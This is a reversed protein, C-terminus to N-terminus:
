HQDDNLPISHFYNTDPFIIKEFQTTLNIINNHSLETLSETKQEINNKIKNSIESMKNYDKEGQKISWARKSGIANIKSVAKDIDKALEPHETKQQELYKITERQQNKLGARATKVDPSAKAHWLKSMAGEKMLNVGVGAMPAGMGTLAVLIATGAAISIGGSIPSIPAQIGGAIILGGGMLVGSIATLSGMAFLTVGVKFTFGPKNMALQKGSKNITMLQKPYNLYSGVTKLKSGVSRLFSKGKDKSALPPQKNTPDTDTRPLKNLSSSEM